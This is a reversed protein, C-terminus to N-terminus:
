TDEQQDLYAGSCFSISVRSHSMGSRYRGKDLTSARWAGFEPDRNKSDDIRSANFKSSVSSFLTSQTRM